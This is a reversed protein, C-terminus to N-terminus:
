AAREERQKDRDHCPKCLCQLNSRDWFLQEDGRHPVVHDAVLRTTNGDLRGCRACAFGAATLVDLRLAKWRATNYWARWPSHILRHKSREREGQPSNGLLRPASSLRSPMQKLRAM